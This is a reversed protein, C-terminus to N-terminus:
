VMEEELVQDQAVEFSVSSSRYPKSWEERDFIRLSVTTFHLKHGEENLILEPFLVSNRCAFLVYYEKILALCCKRSREGEATSPRDRGLFRVLM